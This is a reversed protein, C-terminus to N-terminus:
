LSSKSIMRREKFARIIKIIIILVIIIVIPVVIYLINNVIIDQIKELINNDEIIRIQYIIENGGSSTVIIKIISNNSLNENGEIRYTADEHDLEINFTLYRKNSNLKLRYTFTQSEFDIEHGKVELSNIFARNSQTRSTTIQNTSTTTRRTTSIGRPTEAPPNFPPITTTTTNTGQQFASNPILIPIVLNPNPDHVTNPDSANVFLFGGRRIIIQEGSFGASTSIQVNAIHRGGTEQGFLLIYGSEYRFSEDDFGAGPITRVNTVLDPVVQIFVAFELIDQTANISCNITQGPMFSNDCNFSISADVQIPILIITLLLLLLVKKM